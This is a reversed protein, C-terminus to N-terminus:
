VTWLAGHEFGPRMIQGKDVNQDVAHNERAVVFAGNWAFCLLQEDGRTTPAYRGAIPIFGDEKKRHQM